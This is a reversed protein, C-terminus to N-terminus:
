ATAQHTIALVAEHSQAYDTVSYINFKLAVNTKLSIRNGISGNINFYSFDTTNQIQYIFGITQYLFWLLVLMLGVWCRNKLRGM